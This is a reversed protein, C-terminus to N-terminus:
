RCSNSSRMHHDPARGFFLLKRDRENFRNDNRAADAACNLEDPARAETIRAHAERFVESRNLARTEPDKLREAVYDKLFAGVSQNKALVRERQKTTLDDPLDRNWEEVQEDIGSLITKPAMGNELKADINPMHVGILDKREELTLGGPFRLSEDNLNVTRASTNFVFSRVEPEREMAEPEDLDLEIEEIAEVGAPEPLHEQEDDYLASVQAERIEEFSAVLGPRQVEISVRSEKEEMAPALERMKGLVIDVAEERAEIESKRLPRGQEDGKERSILGCYYKFFEIEGKADATRGAIAKGLTHFEVAKVPDRILRLAYRLENMFPKRDNVVGNMEHPEAPIVLIDGKKLTRREHMDRLERSYRSLWDAKGHQTEYGTDSLHRDRFAERLDSRIDPQAGFKQRAGRLILERTLDRGALSPNREALELLRDDSYLWLDVRSRLFDNIRIREAVEKNREKEDAPLRRRYVQRDIETFIEQRTKGAGLLRDIVPIVELTIWSRTEGSLRDLFTASRRRKSEERIDMLLRGLINDKSGDTIERDGTSRLRARWRTGPAFKHGLATEVVDRRIEPWDPRAQIQAGLRRAEDPTAAAIKRRTELDDKATKMAQYFNEVTRYEIGQHVLPTDFELSYSLIESMGQAERERNRLRNISEIESKIIEGHCKEPACWCVLVLEGTRAIDALRQLERYADGREAIEWSLWRGYKEIVEERAGDRGIRYPNGLVSGKVGATARGIYVENEGGSSKFHKRNVIRIAHVQGTAKGAVSHDHPATEALLKSSPPASEINIESGAELRENAMKTFAELRERGAERARELERDLAEVFYRGIAGEVPRTGGASSFDQRPLLRKPIKGLRRRRGKDDTMEKYILFHIHPHKTNLHIGAVWRWDAVRLDSKLEDMAELAAGRLREKREEDAAGLREFDENRFSVSFHILDGKAPRGRGGNLYRNADGYKFENDGRSTFLPRPGEGEREPDIKSEAIYRAANSPGRGQSQKVKVVARM